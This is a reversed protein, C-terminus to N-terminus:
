LVCVINSLLEHYFIPSVSLAHTSEGPIMITPQGDGSWNYSAVCECNTIRPSFESDNDPSLVDLPLAHLFGGTLEEDGAQDSNRNPGSNRTDRDRWSGGASAWPPLRSGPQERQNFSPAREGRPRNWSKRDQGFRRMTFAPTEQEKPNITPHRHKHHM